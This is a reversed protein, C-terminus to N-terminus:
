DSEFKKRLRAYQDREYQERQRDVRLREAKEETNEPRAWTVRVEGSVSGYDDWTDMDFIADPHEKLLRQLEPIVDKLPRYTDIRKHETVTRETM